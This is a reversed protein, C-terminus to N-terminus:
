SHSVQSTVVADDLQSKQYDEKGQERASLIVPIAQLVASLFPGPDSRSFVAYTKAGRLSQWWQSLNLDGRRWYYFSSQLDRLLHIWKVGRYTQERNAPLPLGIADCYMTYHLEVGGAEAIASGGTPRGINPEIIYHKGCREDRKMELYGLGRYNVGRFLRITEQLVIDNRYEESLCGQGTGPPWQRTKRSVFTVVPESNADFYCNCSYHNTDPGEILDQAILVDTWRHYHDYLALLEAPSAAKFAKQKTHRTWAEPRFPPKLICPFALKQAAEEADSRSYLFFTNPIPLGEKQAYTYFGLKDLMMEVVDPAPLIVHYWQELNERHRSIILVNKDQCPFLVAKESLKPGLDELTEILKETSTDAYLIENCVQTRCSYYNPNKAIAIVPVGRQALIRAIQLGQMSDLGIVIAYSHKKHPKKAQM